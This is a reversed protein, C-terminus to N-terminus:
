SIIRLQTEITRLVKDRSFEESFYKLSNLGLKTLEDKSMRVMNLAAEALEEANEASAVLGCFADRIIRAGEGDISGLIPKACAMYSQLKSPITLEFIKNKKLSVILVDAYSFMSAMETTQFSGIFHVSDGLKRNDVERVLFEKMRGDGAFIWNVKNNTKSKVIEAAKILTLLGQAEGLNGAFFFNFGNPFYEKHRDLPATVSYYDECTNPAYTVKNENIGQKKLYEKFGKSQLLIKDSHKYIWKTLENLVRIIWSSDINSAAKVSEPWLDQVWLAIPIRRIKKIVIAPIASTIPSPQFVLIVDFKENICLARLSGFILFTLYNLALLLGSGKGRSFLPARYVKIFNWEEKLPYLFSYGDFFKGYPYNPMGTLVSIDHGKERLGICIDNIRFSEPWFYQTVVLIKM